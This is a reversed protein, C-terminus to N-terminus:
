STELIRLAFTFPHSYDVEPPATEVARSGAGNWWDAMLQHVAPVTVRPGLQFLRRSLQIAEGVPTTRVQFRTVSM